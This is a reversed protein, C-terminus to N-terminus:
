ARFARQLDTNTIIQPQGELRDRLFAIQAARRLWSILDARNFGETKEAWAGWDIDPEVPFNQAAQRLILEREWVDPLTIYLRHDIRESRLLAHELALRRNTIGVVAM